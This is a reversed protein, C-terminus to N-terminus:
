VNFNLTLLFFPCCVIFFLLTSLPWLTDVLMDFLMRESGVLCPLALLSQSLLNESKYHSYYVSETIVYDFINM